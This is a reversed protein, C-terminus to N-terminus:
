GCVPRKVLIPQLLGMIEINKKLREDVHYFNEKSPILDYVDVYEIEMKEEQKGAEQEAEKEKSRQNLLETLNFKGAM